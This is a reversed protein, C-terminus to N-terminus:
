SKKLIERTASRFTPAGKPLPRWRDHVRSRFWERQAEDRFASKPVVLVYSPAFLQPRLIFVRETEELRRLAAWSAQFTMTRTGQVRREYGPASFVLVQEKRSSKAALRGARSGVWMALPMVLLILGLMSPVIALVLLPLGGRGALLSVLALAVGVALLSFGGLAFRRMLGRSAELALTPDWPIRLEFRDEPDTPERFPDPARRALLYVVGGGLIALVGLGLLIAAGLWDEPADMALRILGQVVLIVGVLVLFRALGRYLTRDAM